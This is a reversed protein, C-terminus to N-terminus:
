HSRVSTAAMARGAAEAIGSGTVMANANANTDSGNIASSPPNIKYLFPEQQQVIRGSGAGIQMLLAVNKIVSEAIKRQQSDHSVLMKKFDPLGKVMSALDFECQYLNSQSGLPKSTLKRYGVWQAPNIQEFSHADNDAVVTAQGPALAFTQNSATLMIANKHSDHLDYVAVARDTAVIMALSNASVAITAFPTDFITNQEPAILLAGRDFSRRAATTDGGAKNVKNRSIEAQIQPSRGPRGPSLIANAPTNSDNGSTQGWSPMIAPGVTSPSTPAVTTLSAPLQLETSGVGGGATGSGPASVPDLKIGSGAPHLSKHMTSIGAPNDFDSDINTNAKLSPTNTAPDKPSSQSQAFASSMGLSQWLGLVLLLTLFLTKSDPRIPTYSSETNAISNM